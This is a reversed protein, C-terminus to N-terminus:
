RPAVPPPVGRGRPHIFPAAPAPNYPRIGYPAYRHGGRGRGRFSPASSTMRREAAVLNVKREFRLATDCANDFTGGLAHLCALSLDPDLNDLFRTVKKEETDIIYPAYRGLENFRNIYETVPRGNQRFTFIPTM